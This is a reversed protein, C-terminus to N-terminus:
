KIKNISKLYQFVEVSLFVTFSTYYSWLLFVVLTGAAGYISDAAVRKLYSAVILNGLFFFIASFFSIKSADKLVPKKSPTFFHIGLFMVYYIVFNVCALAVMTMIKQGDGLYMILKNTIATLTFSFIFFVGTMIVIAMAFLRDKVIDWIPRARESHIMSGYIIDFSFRLQLFVTSATFLLVIVGIIGTISAFSVGENVNKFILEIMKGVEPAITLTAQEVIDHQINSGVLSSVGLLIMLFPAIALASYYSTSSALLFLNDGEIKALISKM